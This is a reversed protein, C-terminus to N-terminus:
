GSFSEWAVRQSLYDPRVEHTQWRQHFVPTASGSVPPVIWSWEASVARGLKGERAAFEMFEVAAQHHDVVRVKAEAFSHLVAANLELLAWDKWLPSWPSRGGYTREAIVRLQNYRSEDALDRGVETGMYWGNFPAAPYDVGGVRLLMDAIVPVAYWKLGLEGFWEFEPHRLPVELAHAVPAPYVRPAEGRRQIVLPLLDFMGGAGSWGLARVQDTFDANAPDGIVTGDEQRYGAYGLLQRNWIRVRPGEADAPAFITIIPRIKGGNTAADLHELLAAHVEDPDDVGRRDRVELSTWFLRGICKAHNRWAVRAGHELEEVDAVWTGEGLAALRGELREMSWKKEIACLELLERAEAEATRGDGRGAVPEGVRMGVLEPNATVDSKKSHKLTRTQFTEGKLTEKLDSAM